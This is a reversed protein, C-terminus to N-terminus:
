KIMQYLSKMINNVCSSALHIPLKIGDSLYFKELNDWFTDYSHVKHYFLSSNLM